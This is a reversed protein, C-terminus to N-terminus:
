AAWVGAAGEGDDGPKNAVLIGAVAANTSAMRKNRKGKISNLHLPPATAFLVPSPIAIPLGQFSTTLLFRKPFANLLLESSLDAFSFVFCSGLLNAIAARPRPKMPNSM